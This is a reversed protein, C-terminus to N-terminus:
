RLCVLFPQRFVTEPLRQKFPALNSFRVSVMPM